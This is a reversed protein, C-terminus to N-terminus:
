ERKEKRRQRAMEDEIHSSVVPVEEGGSLFRIQEAVEDSKSWFNRKVKWTDLNYSYMSMNLTRAAPLITFAWKAIWWKV